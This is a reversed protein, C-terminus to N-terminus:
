VVNYYDGQIEKIFIASPGQIGYSGAKDLPDKTKVYAELAKKSVADFTVSTKEFEGVITPEASKKDLTLLVISSIVCHTRGQLSTLMELAEEPSRPKELIEGDNVVVTDSGIIITPGDFSNRKRDLVELVKCRSNELCYEGASSFETKNLDEPFQSPIIELM